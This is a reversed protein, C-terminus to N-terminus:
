GHDQTQEELERGCIKCSGSMDVYDQKAEVIEHVGVSKKVCAKLVKDTCHSRLM